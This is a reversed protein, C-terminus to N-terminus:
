YHQTFLKEPKNTTSFIPTLIRLVLSFYPICLDLPVCIPPFPKAVSVIVESGESNDGM